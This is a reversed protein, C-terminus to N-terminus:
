IHTSVTHEEPLKSAACTIVDPVSLSRATETETGHPQRERVGAM